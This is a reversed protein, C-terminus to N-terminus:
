NSETESKESGSEMLNESWIACTESEEESEQDLDTTSTASNCSMFSYGKQTLKVSVIMYLPESSQSRLPQAKVVIQDAIHESLVHDHLQNHLLQYVYEPEFDRLKLIILQDPHFSDSYSGLSTVTDDNGNVIFDECARALNIIVTNLFGSASTHSWAMVQVDLKISETDM